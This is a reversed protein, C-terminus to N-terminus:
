KRKRNFAFALASGIATMSWGLVSVVSAPAAAGTNPLLDDPVAAAPETDTAKSTEEATKAAMVAAATQEDAVAISHRDDSAEREAVPANDEIPQEGNAQENESAAEQDSDEAPTEYTAARATLWDSPDLPRNVLRTEGIWGIFGAERQGDYQGAGLSWPAGTAAIGVTNTANRLVPVGNVYLIATQTEPDNVVALHYWADLDVIEGSWNSNENSEAKSDVFAFQVEKLNSLAWAFPPEDSESGTYNAVEERQGERVLWQMWENDEVTFSPDFKVFTEFTYGNEFEEFNIPADAATRFYSATKYGLNTSNNRSGGEFRVSGSNSSLPHHDDSFYVDELEAGQIGEQNLPARYFANEPNAIDKIAGGVNVVEGNQSTPFRWHAVTGEVVPYDAESAPLAPATQDPAAFNEMITSRVAKTVSSNGPGGTKLNAFRGAFNFDLTFTQTTNKLLAQDDAVLLEPNKTMVWPSFSTQHIKNNTLDFELLGMYGNGGMYAMQYDMLIQHVPNGYANEREVVTAGHHHGNFTLFVQDNNEIVNNWVSEGFDTPAGQQSDSDINILQHSTLITPTDPHQNLMDNAWAIAAEDAEWSLGLVAFDQGEVNFIHYEHVGSADRAILTENLAAREPSFTNTYSGYYTAGGVDHNGAIIAYNHDADELIQLAEDAVAWEEPRNSRDVVDGLHLTMAINYKDDNDAIWQTQTNFPESGYMADYQNGTEATSYRSYFQSDPLIALSFRSGEEEFSDDGILEAESQERVETPVPNTALWSATADEVIIEQAAATMESVATVAADDVVATEVDATEPTAQAVAAPAETDENVTEIVTNTAATTEDASVSMVQDCNGLIALSLLSTTLISKKNMKMKTM